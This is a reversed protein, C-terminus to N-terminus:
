IVWILFNSFMIFSKIALKDWSNLVGTATILAFESDRTSPAKSSLSIAWFNELAINFFESFSDYRKSSIRFRDVISDPSYLRSSASFPTESIKLFEILETM